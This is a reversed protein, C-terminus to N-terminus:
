GRPPEEVEIAALELAVGATFVGLIHPAIGGTAIHWSLQSSVSLVIRALTIDDVDPAIRRLHDGLERKWGHCPCDSARCRDADVRELVYRERDTLGTM